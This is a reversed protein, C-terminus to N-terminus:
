VQSGYIADSAANEEPSADAIAAEYDPTSIWGKIYYATDLQARTITGAAYMQLTKRGLLNTVAPPTVAM